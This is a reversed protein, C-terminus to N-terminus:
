VAPLSSPGVEASEVQIRCGKPCTIALVWLRAGAIKGTNVDVAHLSGWPPQQCPLRTEHNWFYVYGDKLGWSGDPRKALQQPSALDNTNVIFYGLQPDFAGGGWDIGGLSGPFSAVASDGRLPQYM